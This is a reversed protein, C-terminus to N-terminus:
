DQGVFITGVVEVPSPLGYACEDCTLADDRLVRFPVMIWDLPPPVYEWKWAGCRPCPDIEGTYPLRM